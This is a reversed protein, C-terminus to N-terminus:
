EIQKSKRVIAQPGGDDGNGPFVFNVNGKAIKKLEKQHLGIM